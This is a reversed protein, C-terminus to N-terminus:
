QGGKQVHYAVSLLRSSLRVNCREAAPLSVEFRVREDVVRFNIVSGSQLGNEQETVTVTGNKEATRLAQGPQAADEGIFLLQLGALSDGERLQRVTIARNGVNRGVVIRALEAAVDEAGLVGVVLAPGPDAPFEMYGLFKYLFAAKVSRELVPAPSGPQTGLAMCSFAFLLLVLAILRTIWGSSVQPPMASM